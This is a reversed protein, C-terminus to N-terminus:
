MLLWEEIESATGTKRIRGDEMVAIKTALSFAEERDHTVFLLTTHFVEQLKLLEKRM